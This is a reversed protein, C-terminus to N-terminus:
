YWNTSYGDNPKATSDPVEGESPESPDTPQEVPETPERSTDEAPADKGEAPADETPENPTLLNDVDLEEDQKAEQQTFHEKGQETPSTPQAPETPTTQVPSTPLSEEPSDMNCATLLMCLVALSAVMVLIIKKNM